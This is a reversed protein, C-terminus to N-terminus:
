PAPPPPFAQKIVCHVETNDMEEKVAGANPGQAYIPVRQSSHGAYGPVVSKTWKLQILDGQQYDKKTVEIGGTEHDATIVVLTDGRDKAWALVWEVTRNFEAMEHVLKDLDTRHGAHDIRAGEIMLFFGRPDRDLVKIATQAMESLHPQTTDDDREAEFTLGGPAFLGFLRSVSLPGAALLDERNRVVTYGLERAKEILNPHQGDGKFERAGGGLMVDPQTVEVMQSTIEFADSRKGAHAAFVAPTADWLATTTVLGTAKYSKVRELISEFKEENKDDMSITANTTKHGTALATGAAASDTIGSM